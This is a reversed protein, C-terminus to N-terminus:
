FPKASFEFSHVISQFTFSQITWSLEHFILPPNHFVRKFIWFFSQPFGCKIFIGFVMFFLSHLLRIFDFNNWKIKGKNFVNNWKSYNPLQGGKKAFHSLIWFIGMYLFSIIILWFGLDFGFLEEYNLFPSSFFHLYLLGALFLFGHNWSKSLLSKEMSIQVCSIALFSSSLSVPIGVVMDIFYFFLGCFAMQALTMCAIIQRYSIKFEM